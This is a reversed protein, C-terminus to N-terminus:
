LSLIISDWDTPAGDRGTVKKLLRRRILSVTSKDRLVLTAISSPPLEMKLLLCVQYELPNMYGLQSLHQRFDPYVADLLKEIEKVEKERVHNGQSVMQQLRKMIPSDKIVSDAQKKEGRKIEAVLNANELQEKQRELREVLEHNEQNAEELQQQLHIIEEKNAQIFAESQRYKEAQLEQLREKNHRHRMRKRRSYQYYIILLLLIVSVVFAIRQLLQQHQELQKQLRVNEKERLQYNYMANMRSVSETADARHISDTCAKYLEYYYLYDDAQHHHAAITALGNYADQRVPAADAQIMQLYYTKAEDYRGENLLINAYVDYTSYKDAEGVQQMAQDIFRHAEERKGQQNYLGALQSAILGQMEEDGYQQALLEAQHLYHLASDPQQMTRHTFSLDRLDLIIGLTDNALADHRYAERYMALAEPYLSQYYYIEGMQAYLVASVWREENQQSADVGKQFYALALPADNLDRYVRGAYYYAEGLYNPDGGQEYYQVVPLILSDTTHPIYAKDAAKICLLRYLMQTSKPAQLMDEEMSSLLTIATTPDASALSDALLLQAPYDIRQQCGALGLMM